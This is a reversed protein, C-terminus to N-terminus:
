VPVEQITHIYEVIRLKIFAFLFAQHTMAEGRIEKLSKWEVL